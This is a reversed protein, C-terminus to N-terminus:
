KANLSQQIAARVSNLANGVLLGVPEEMDLAPWDVNTETPPVGFFKGRYRVINYGLYNYEVAIPTDDFRVPALKVPRHRWEEM